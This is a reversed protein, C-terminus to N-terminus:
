PAPINNFEVSVDGLRLPLNPPPHDKAPSKGALPEFVAGLQENVGALEVPLGQLISRAQLVRDNGDILNAGLIVAISGPSVGQQRDDRPGPANMVASIFPDILPILRFPM